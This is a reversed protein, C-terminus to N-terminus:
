AEDTGQGLGLPFHFKTTSLVEPLSFGNKLGGTCPHIGEVVALMQLLGPPAESPTDREQWRLTSLSAFAFCGARMEDAEQGAAEAAKVAKRHVTGWVLGKHESGRVTSGLTHLLM